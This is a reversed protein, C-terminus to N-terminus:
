RITREPIPLGKEISASIWSYKADQILELAEQPTDGVATCGPLDPITATWGGDEPTLVIQYHIAVAAEIRHTV